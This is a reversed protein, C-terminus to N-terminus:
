DRPSPIHILSLGRLEFLNRCVPHVLFYVPGYTSIHKQQTYTLNNANWLDVVRTFVFKSLLDVSQDGANFRSDKGVRVRDAEYWHTLGVVVDVYTLLTRM